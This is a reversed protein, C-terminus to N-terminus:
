NASQFRFYCYAQVTQKTGQPMWWRHWYVLQRRASAQKSGCHLAVRIHDRHLSYMEICDGPLYNAYGPNIYSLPKLAIHGGLWKSKVLMYNKLLILYIEAWFFNLTNCSHSIWQATVWGTICWWFGGLCVLMETLVSNKFFDWDSQIGSNIERRATAHFLLNWVYTDVYWISNGWGQEWKKIEFRFTMFVSTCIKLISITFDWM